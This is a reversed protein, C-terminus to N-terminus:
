VIVFDAHTLALHIGLTAIKEPAKVGSSGDADYFLVGTNKDYILYDDSDVANPAIVFNQAALVGLSLADFDFSSLRITDDIPTFDTIKDTSVVYESRDFIFIDKGAGGTLVNTGGGGNLKDNGKGGNLVDNGDESGPYGDGGLLTDNGVNGYLTDNGENGVLKDNGINGVLTDNDLMGYLTDDGSNGSIKDHGELGYIVDDKVTGILIDNGNSETNSQQLLKIALTKSDTLTGALVSVTFNVTKNSGLLNIAEANPVFSYAGTKTNLTLEGYTSDYAKVTNNGNDASDVINFTIPSTGVKSASLKGSVTAFSDQFVTDTYQIAAPSKLIPSNIKVDTFGIANLKGGTGQTGTNGDSFLWDIRVQQSTHVVTNKYALSSLVEDVRAQTANINFTIVLKGASNNITGIAVGSLLANGGSFSLKGAGSFVDQTNAGGHRALTVSAGAYHGQANLEADFISASSDLVVAPKNDAYTASSNLTHTGGFLTDLSGNGNYRLLAFHGDSSGTLLIKGDAQVTISDARDDGGLDTIVKGDDSFSTDVTGNANYRVVAVNGDSNGAVLIKGNSQVTVARGGDDTGVNTIVKGDGSFGTDLTGNANYRVLAFDPYAPNSANNASTLTTAEGAVLIKGDAQVTVAYGDAGDEVATTLKGDGSFSTDLTGNTNYRVLGFYNPFSQGNEYGGTRGAVLIKGDTQVAIDLAYEYGGGFSVRTTVEGDGSFSNDQTGDPNYRMVSFNSGHGTVLIKGNGQTFVSTHYPYTNKLTLTAMGDDSYSVDLSGNANFHVFTLDTENTGTVWINGNTQVKAYNAQLAISSDVVKGTPKVLFHPPTNTSM